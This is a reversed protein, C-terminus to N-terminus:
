RNLMPYPFDSDLRYTMSYDFQKPFNPDLRNSGFPSDRADSIPPEMSFMIWKQNKGRSPIDAANFDRVHFVVAKSQNLFERRITLRCVVAGCDLDDDGFPRGFLTTWFLIVAPDNSFSDVTVPFLTPIQSIQTPIQSIQTPIQSMQTPIQSIQRTMFYCYYFYGSLYIIFSVLASATARSVAGRPALLFSALDHM